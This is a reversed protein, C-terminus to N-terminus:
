VDNEADEDPGFESERNPPVKEESSESSLAMEENNGSLAILQRLIEVIRDPPDPQASM